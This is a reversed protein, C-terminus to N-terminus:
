LPTLKRFALYKNETFKLLQGIGDFLVILLYTAFNSLLAHTEIPNFLLPPLHYKKICMFFLIVSHTNQRHDNRVWSVTHSFLTSFSTYGLWPCPFHQLLAVVKSNIFTFSRKTILYLPTNITVAIKQLRHKVSSHVKIEFSLGFLYLVHCQATFVEFFM